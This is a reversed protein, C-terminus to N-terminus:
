CWRRSWRRISFANQFAESVSNDVRSIGCWCILGSVAFLGAVVSRRLRAGTQPGRPTSITAPGGRWGGYLHDPRKYKALTVGCLLHLRGASGDGNDLVGRRCRGCVAGGGYSAWWIAWAWEPHGHVGGADPLVLPRRGQREEGCVAQWCIRSCGCRCFGRACPSSCGCGDAAPHGYVLSQPDRKLHLTLLDSGCCATSARSSNFSCLM